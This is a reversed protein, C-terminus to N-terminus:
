LIDAKTLAKLLATVTWSYVAPLSARNAISFDGSTVKPLPSRACNSNHTCHNIGISNLHGLTFKLGWLTVFFHIHEVLSAVWYTINSDWPCPPNIHAQNQLVFGVLDGMNLFFFFCNGLAWFNLHFFMKRSSHIYICINTIQGVRIILLCFAYLSVTRLSSTSPCFCPSFSLSGIRTKKKKHLHLHREM